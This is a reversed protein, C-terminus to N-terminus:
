SSFAGAPMQKVFTGPGARHKVRPYISPLFHIFLALAFLCFGYVRLVFCFLFAPTLVPIPLVPIYRLQSLKSVGEFPAAACLVRSHWPVCGGLRM